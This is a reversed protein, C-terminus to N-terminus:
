ANRVEDAWLLSTAHTSRKVFVLFQFIRMRADSAEKWQHNIMTPRVSSLVTTM